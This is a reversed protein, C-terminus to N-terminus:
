NKKKKKTPRWKPHNKGMFTQPASSPCFYPDANTQLLFGHKFRFPKKKIFLSKTRFFNFLFLYLYLSETPHKIRDTEAFTSLPSKLNWSSFFEEGDLNGRSGIIFHLHRCKYMCVYMIYACVANEFLALIKVFLIVYGYPLHIWFIYDDRRM